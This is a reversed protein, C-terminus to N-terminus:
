RLCHTRFCFTLSSMRCRSFPNSRSSSIAVWDGGFLRCFAANAFSTLVLVDFKGTPKTKQIREFREAAISLDLHNDAVEWSLRSLRANMNFNIGCDATKRQAVVADTRNDHWVSVSVHAPMIFIDFGVGFTKAIRRANKEIRISTAGCGLLLSSYEALFTAAERLYSNNDAIGM